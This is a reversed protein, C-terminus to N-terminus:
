AIKVRDTLVLFIRARNNDYSRYGYAIRKLVKFHNNIAETVANTYGSVLTNAIYRRYRKLTGLCVMMQPHLGEPNEKLLALFRDPSNTDLVTLLRQYFEWTSRLMENQKMMRKLLYDQTKWTRLHSVWRTKWGDLLRGKTLPLRWFGKFIKYVAKDQQTKMVEIRCRDLANSALQVVHFKDICIRAHPFLRRSVALYGEYMDTTIHTVKARVAESYQEFYKNLYGKKRDPCIDFVEGKLVDVLTLAFKSGKLTSVARFEDIGLVEPLDSFDREITAYWGQIVRQVTNWSVKYRRAIDSVSLKTTTDRLIEQKVPESIYCGRRTLNSPSLFTRSCGSCQYRQKKLRIWCPLSYADTMRVFSVKFGYKIGQSGCAPCPCAPMMQIAPQILTRKGKHEEFYPEPHAPDAIIGKVKLESLITDFQSM